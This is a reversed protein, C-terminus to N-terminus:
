LLTPPSRGSSRVALIAGRDIFVFAAPSGADAFEASAGVDPSQPASSLQSSACATCHLPTKLHCLFDHHEFPSTVLFAFHFLVGLLVLRKWRMPRCTRTM